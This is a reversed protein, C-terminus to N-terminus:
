AYSQKVNQPCPLTSKHLRDKLKLFPREVLFHSALAMGAACLFNLPFRNVMWHGGSNLFLNNWVYLSYSLVGLFVLPRWNLFRFLMTGPFSVAATIVICICALDLSKGVTISYAGRFHEGLLPSVILPFVIASGLILRRGALGQLWTKYQPQLMLEGLLVGAAISDFGTHFMMAIQGRSGPMLFYTAIRLLPALVMIVLLVSRLQRRAFLLM